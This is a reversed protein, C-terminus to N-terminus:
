SEILCILQGTTVPEGATVSLRTLTGSRHAHIENEM